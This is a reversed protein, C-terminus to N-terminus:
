SLTKDHKPLSIAHYQGDLLCIEWVGKNIPGKRQVSESVVGVSWYDESSVEVEWKHTGSNFGESGLVRDWQFREPNEPFMQREKFKVNDLTRSLIFNSHATNPDLIVPYFQFLDKMNRWINFGLNGLHKAQDMLAGSGMQPAEVLPCRLVKEKAVKYQLLFSADAAKMQKQTETITELLAEIERNVEDLKDQLSRRKQQEEERLARLRAQEEEQLFQHFRRFQDRIEKEILRAQAQVHTTATFFQDKSKNLVQLHENLPHLAIQLQKKFGPTVEAVPKFLHNRHAESDVSKDFGLETTSRGQVITKQLNSLAQSAERGVLEESLRQLLQSQM